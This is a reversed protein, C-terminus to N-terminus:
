PLIFSLAKPTPPIYTKMSDVMVTFPYLLTSGFRNWWPSQQTHDNEHLDNQSNVQESRLLGRNFLRHSKMEQCVHDYLCKFYCSSPCVLKHCKPCLIACHYCCKKCRECPSAGVYTYCYRCQQTFQM